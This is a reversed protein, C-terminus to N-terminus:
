PTSGWRFNFGPTKGRHVMMVDPAKRENEPKARFSKPTPPAITSRLAIGSRATSKPWQDAGVRGSKSRDGGGGNETRKCWARIGNKWGLWEKEKRSGDNLRGPWLPSGTGGEGLGSKKKHIHTGKGMMYPSVHGKLLRLYINRAKYLAVTAEKAGKAGLAVGRSEVDVESLPAELRVDWGEPRDTRRAIQSKKGRSWSHACGGTCLVIVTRDTLSSNREKKKNLSSGGRGIV